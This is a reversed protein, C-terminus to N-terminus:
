PRAGAAEAVRSFLAHEPEHLILALAGMVEARRGLQGAVVEVEAAASPIAYRSISETIPALLVDGAASLDGGIIAREPNFVNCLNALAVGISRGADAIVRQALSDGRHALEILEAIAVEDGRVANFAGAVAVTGAVTELCGRNGCRCVEGNERLSTHGLEGATGGTGRYLHGDVVLAGGIGSRVSVFIFNQAGQGAGWVLEALAGLNADNEVRVRMGLRERMASAADVGVWGPLISTSGVTGNHTTIPGPLGMGVGLVQDRDVNAEELAAEVLEGAMDLGESASSDVDLDHWSEALVTHSLDGVVVGIHSHGFDLGVVSGASRDFSLLVPPRGVSQDHDSDAQREVVLGAGKLDGVLNSVTTRSLGTARAIDARSAVGRAGLAEIVRRQNADRLARLGGGKEMGAAVM